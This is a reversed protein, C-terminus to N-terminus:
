DGVVEEPSTVRGTVAAVDGSASVFRGLLPNKAVREMQRRRKEAEAVGPMEEELQRQIDRKMRVCNPEKGKRM